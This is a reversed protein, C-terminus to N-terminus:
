KEGVDKGISLKMFNYISYIFVIHKISFEMLHNELSRCCVHWFITFPCFNELTDPPCKILRSKRLCGAEKNLNLIFKHQYKV